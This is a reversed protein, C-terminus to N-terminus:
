IDFTSNIWDIVEMNGDIYTLILEHKGMLLDRKDLDFKEVLWKVVNLNGSRLAMRLAKNGNNRIEGSDIILLEEFKELIELKCTGCAESFFDLIDKRYKDEGLNFNNMLWEVFETDGRVLGKKLCSMIIKSDHELDMELTQITWKVLEIKNRDCIVNLFHAIMEGEYQKRKDLLKEEILWKFVDCDGSDCLDYIELIYDPVIFDNKHIDKLSLNLTNYLLKIIGFHKDEIAVEVANTLIKKHSEKLNYKTILYEAIEIQSIHCATSVPRIIWEKSPNYKEVLLRVIDLYGNSIAIDLMDSVEWDKLKIYQMASKMAAKDGKSAVYELCYKETSGYKRGKEPFYKMIVSILDDSDALSIQLKDMLWEVIERNGDVYSMILSYCGQYLKSSPINFRKIIWKLVKLNGKRYVKDIAWTDSIDTNHDYSILKKDLWDLFELDGSCCACSFAFNLLETTDSDLVINGDFFSKFIWETYIKDGLECTKYLYYKILERNNELNLELTKIIYKAVTFDNRDVIERFTYNIKSTTADGSKIDKKLLRILWNFVEHHGKGYIDLLSLKIKLLEEFKINFIDVVFSAIEVHGKECANKVAWSADWSSKKSLDLSLLLYKVVDLNGGKCALRLIDINEKKSIEEEFLKVIQLNGNECGKELAKYLQYGSFKIYKLLWRAMLVNGHQCAYNLCNEKDDRNFFIIIPTQNLIDYIPGEYPPLYHEKIELEMPDSSTIAIPEISISQFMKLLSIVWVFLLTFRLNM